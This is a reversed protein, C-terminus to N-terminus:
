ELGRERRKDIREASGGDGRRRGGYEIWRAPELEDGGSVVRWCVGELHCDALGVMSCFRQHKTGALAKTLMDAPMEDTPLWELQVEGSAVKERSYLAHVAFHKTRFHSSPHDASIMMSRNDARITTAGSPGFGIDSLLDRLWTAERVASSFAYYEAETSSISVVAQRKSQWSIACGALTFVWGSVSRRTHTDGAHDSDTFGTVSSSGSPQFTPGLTRTGAVYRLIRKLQQWHRQAPAASFRSCVSVAHSIDPRTCIALYLFAGLLERYRENTIPEDPM